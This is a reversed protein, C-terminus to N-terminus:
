RTVESPLLGRKELDDIVLFRVYESLTIGKAIAHREALERVNEGLRTTVAKM